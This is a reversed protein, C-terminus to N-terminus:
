GDVKELHLTTMGTGDDQVVGVRYRVSNIIMQEDYKVGHSTKTQFRVSRIMMSQQQDEIEIDEDDFIGAIDCSPLGGSPFHVGVVAFDDANLIANLDNTLFSGAM